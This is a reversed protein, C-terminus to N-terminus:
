QKIVVGEKLNLHKKAYDLPMIAVDKQTIDALINELYEWRELSISTLMNSVLFVCLNSNEIMQVKEFHYNKFVSSLINTNIM